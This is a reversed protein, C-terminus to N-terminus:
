PSPLRNVKVHAARLLDGDRLYGAAVEELVAQPPQTPQSEVAVALMLAPDFPKGKTDIRTVGEKRLLEEIHSLLIDLGQSQAKWAKLWPEDTSAGWWSKKTPPPTKFAQALRHMRDLWDALVLCHARTMREQKPLSAALLAASERLPALGNEFRALTDNWQSFAEATRRNAKRAEANTAALQAHFSFLDPEEQIEDGEAEQEPIEEISELWAEFDRRLDTKWDKLESHNELSPALSETEDDLSDHLIPSVIPGLSSPTSNWPAPSTEDALPPLPV